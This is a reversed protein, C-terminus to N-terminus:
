RRTGVTGRALLASLGEASRAVLSTSDTLDERHPMDALADAVDKPVVAAPCRRAARTVDAHDDTGPAFLLDHQEDPEVADVDEWVTIRSAGAYAHLLRALRRLEPDGCCADVIAAGRSRLARSTQGLGAELELVTAGAVDLLQLVEDAPGPAHPALLRDCEAPDSGMAALEARILGDLEARVSPRDQEGTADGGRWRAPVTGAPGRAAADGGSGNNNSATGGAQAEPGGTVEVGRANEAPPTSLDLAAAASLVDGARHRLLWEDYERVSPTAAQQDEREEIQFLQADTCCWTERGARAIRACLDFGVEEGQDVYAGGLGGAEEYADRRVALCALSAGRSRHTPGAMEPHLGRHWHHLELRGSMEDRRLAAGAHRITGDEHLLVAGVAGPASEKDLVRTLAAVWGPASPLTDAGLFTIVAGKALSAGLRAAPVQGAVGDTVAVRFPVGHLRVLGDAMREFEKLLGPVSLVYILEVSEFDADIGFHLIQHEVMDIRDGIAVVVSVEPEMPVDGFSSVTGTRMETREDALLRSLAPEIHDARLEDDMWVDRLLQERVAAPDAEVGPARVECGADDSAEIELRWGAPLASPASLKVLAILGAGGATEPTEGEVDPRPYRFAGDLSARVGEPSVATLRRVEGRPDHVWGRLYYADDDIRLVHDLRARYGAHLADSLRERLAERVHHLAKALEVSLDGGLRARALLATLAVIRQREPGALPALEDRLVEALPRQVEALPAEAVSEGAVRVAVTAGELMPETLSAGLVLIAGSGTGDDCCVSSAPRERGIRLAVPTSPDPAGPARVVVLVAQDALRCASTIRHSM